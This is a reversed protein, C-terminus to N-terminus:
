KVHFTSNTEFIKHIITPGEGRNHPIHWLFVFFLEASWFYSRSLIVCFVVCSYSPPSRELNWLTFISNKETLSKLVMVRLREMVRLCKLSGTSKTVPWPRSVLLFYSNTWYTNRHTEKYYRNRCYKRWVLWLIITVMFSKNGM